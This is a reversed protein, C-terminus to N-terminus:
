QAQERPVLRLTALSLSQASSMGAWTVTARLRAAHPGPATWDDGSPYPAVVMQWTLGSPSTGRRAGAIITPAARAEAILSRALARAEFARDRAGERSLTQSFIALLVSLSLGLITLAVLVELLTFGGTEAGGDVCALAAARLPTLGASGPDGVPSKRSPGPMAGMARQATATFIM